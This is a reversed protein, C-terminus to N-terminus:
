RNGATGAGSSVSQLSEACQCVAGCRTERETRGRADDRGLLEFLRDRAGQRSQDTREACGADRAKDMLTELFEAFLDVACIKADPLEKALVLTSAGTGCGIDAISIPAAQDLQTLKLARCTEDDSGPGQRLGDRHLDVMLSFLTQEDM